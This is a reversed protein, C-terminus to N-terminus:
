PEIAEIAERIEDHACPAFNCDCPGTKKSAAEKMSKRGAVFAERLRKNRRDCVACYRGWVADRWEEFTKM